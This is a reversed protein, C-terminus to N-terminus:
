RRYKRARAARVKLVIKAEYMRQWEEVTNQGSMMGLAKIMNKMAWSAQYHDKKEIQAAIADANANARRLGEKNKADVDQWFPVTMEQHITTVSGGYTNAM